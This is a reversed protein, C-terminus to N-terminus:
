EASPNPPDLLDLATNLQELQREIHEGEDANTATGLQEL